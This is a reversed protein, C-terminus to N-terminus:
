KSLLTKWCTRKNNSILEIFYIGTSLTQTSFTFNCNNSISNYLPRGTMDTIRIEYPGSKGNSTIKWSTESRSLKPNDEALTSTSTQMNVGKIYIDDIKLRGSSLVPEGINSTDTTMIWRIEVTEQNECIQPLELDSIVGSVWENLVVRESGQLDQWIGESTVFYQVIFDRPGPFTGGSNMKSSVTIQSYGTTNVNIQHAKVGTGNDWGSTMASSTTFGSKSFDIDSVGGVTIIEQQLNNETSIDPNADAITGTPFTWGAITEIGQGYMKQTFTSIILICLM